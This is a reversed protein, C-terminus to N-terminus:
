KFGVDDFKSGTEIKGRNVDIGGDRKGLFNEVSAIGTGLDLDEIVVQTMGTSGKKMGQPDIKTGLIAALGEVRGIELEKDEGRQKM